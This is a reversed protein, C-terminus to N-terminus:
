RAGDAPVYAPGRGEALAIGDLFLKIDNPDDLFSPAFADIPQASLARYRRLAEAAADAQRLHGYSAALFSLAHPSDLQQSTEKLLTVAENFRRQQFRAQGLFAARAVQRWPMPDLRMVTEFNEVAGDADGAQLRIAGSFFWASWAGPNLSIAREILGIAAQHDREMSAVVMAVSALVYADDGAARLARHAMEVARRRSADPDDSWAFRVIRMHCQAALALAAGFNPDLALARDFLDLAELVTTREFSRQHELGRLYLDYSGVNDTPRASARRIEATEVKPEIVGAVALAVKDQLAFVDELTDEFRDGWIQSGDSADILKVSIRVRSGAKRVSGDLVYRVGLLRAVEQAAVTKGKFAFTSGSAIVFISRFRSLANVIEEVMGDAFYEQEPDGSLNAFPMVAISPKSPLALPAAAGATPSDTGGMLDAVSAVVKRWGAAEVDGAWGSLDAYQITDFPMPLRTKDTTVQVLKRDERARNAESLVWDSQVADASWIVVAAKAATMQEELVRGFTRHAPLDDDIWVSYGLARLAGAVAQAQKATSRAYSIFVDSM